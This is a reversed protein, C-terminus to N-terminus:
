LHAYSDPGRGMGDWKAKIIGKLACAQESFPSNSPTWEIKLQQSIANNAALSDVYSAPGM